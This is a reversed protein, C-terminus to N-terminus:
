SHIRKLMYGAPQGYNETDILKQLLGYNDKCVCLTCSTLKNNM